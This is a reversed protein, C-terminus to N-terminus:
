GPLTLHCMSVTSVDIYYKGSFSNWCWLTCRFFHLHLTIHKGVSCGSNLLDRACVKNEFIKNGLKQLLSKPVLIVEFGFVASRNLWVGEPQTQLKNSHSRRSRLLFSFLCRDLTTLKCCTLTTKICSMPNTVIFQLAIAIYQLTTQCWHPLTGRNIIKHRRWLM